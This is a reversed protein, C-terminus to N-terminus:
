NLQKLLNEFFDRDDTKSKTNKVFIYYLNKDIFKNYINNVNIGIINKNITIILGKTDLSLDNKKICIIRQDVFIDDNNEEYLYYNNLKSKIDDNLFFFISNQKNNTLDLITKLPEINM